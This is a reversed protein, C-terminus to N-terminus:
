SETEELTRRMARHPTNTRGSLFEPGFATFGLKEYFGIAHVRAHLTVAPAGAERAMDVLADMVASGVGTGRAEHAVCVQYVHPPDAELHIRGYGVIREGSLAVVHRYTRGDTDEVLERPLDWEAYLTRYRLEKAELYRPTGPEIEIVQGAAPAEDAM